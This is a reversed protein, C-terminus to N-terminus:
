EKRAKENGEEGDRGWERSIGERSISIFTNKYGCEFVQENKVLKM